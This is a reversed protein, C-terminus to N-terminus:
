LLQRQKVSMYQSVLEACLGENTLLRFNVGQRKLVRELERLEHWRWHGGLQRYIDAVRTVEPDTFLPQIGPQTIMNVLLLHQRSILRINQVFSESLVPDDLNTLFVLLARRTLRRRVFSCLEDFDPTVIKPEMTYLADRCANYHAKGNRARLFAEVHDNFVLLGFKDGQKEAALGLVLAASLFRELQSEEDVPALPDAPRASLRSADIVVYVEQTREIQYVKTVPQGRKASAKWHIDEYSDGPIYERLKEFDRGRGVQRQAHVGIGGRNLFLAALNRREKLLNPYVRIEMPTHCSKRLAWLGLPSSREFYCRELLYRGRRSPTCAWSYQTHEHGAPIQVLVDSAASGIDAPFPLGLRLRFAKKESSSILVPVVGERNRTFRLVEPLEVRLGRLSGFGFVADLLAAALFFGVALWGAPVLQPMAAGLLAAPLMVSGAWFLLRYQPVIM